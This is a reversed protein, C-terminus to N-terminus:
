MVAAIASSRGSEVHPAFDLGLARTRKLLTHVSEDLAFYIAKEGRVAASHVFLAAVTM